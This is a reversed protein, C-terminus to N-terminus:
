KKNLENNILTKIERAYEIFEKTQEATPMGDPLLGLEGPYRSEIYVENIGILKKEDIGLDKIERILGNLKILDHTKILQVDNEILYAKFYKEITQQCHFVVINTLLNDDKIIVEAASFDKEALLIWDEVQKKM